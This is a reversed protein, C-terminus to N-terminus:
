IPHHYAIVKEDDDPDCIIDKFIPDQAIIRWYKEQDPVLKVFV